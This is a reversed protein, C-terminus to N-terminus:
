MGCCNLPYRPDEPFAVGSFNMTVILVACVLAVIKRKIKRGKMDM